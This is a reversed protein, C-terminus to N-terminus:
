QSIGSQIDNIDNNINAIEDKIIVIDDKMESIKNYIRYTTLIKLFM